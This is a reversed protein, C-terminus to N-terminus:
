LDQDAKQVAQYEAVAFRYEMLHVVTTTLSPAPSQLWCMSTQKQGKESELM